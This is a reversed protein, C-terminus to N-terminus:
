WHMSNGLIYGLDPRVKRGGEPSEKKYNLDEKRSSEKVGEAEPDKQSPRPCVLLVPKWLKKWKKQFDALEEDTMNTLTDEDVATTGNSKRQKEKLEDVACKNASREEKKKKTRDKGGKKAPQRAVALVRPAMEVETKDDKEVPQTEVTEVHETEDKDGMEVPQTEAAMVSLAKVNENAQEAFPNDAPPELMDETIGPQWMDKWQEQFAEVESDTMETIVNRDEQGRSRVEVVEFSQDGITRTHALETKTIENSGPIKVTTVQKKECLQTGGVIMKHDTTLVQHDEVVSTNGDFM